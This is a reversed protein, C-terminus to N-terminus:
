LVKQRQAEAQWSRRLLDIVEQDSTQSFNVYWASVAGFSEPTNLCVLEDVLPRLQLVTSQAGVPVALIVKSPGLARVAQIAARASAGTALGDDVLIATQGALRPYPRQGRFLSLRRALEAIERQVSAQLGQPGLRFFAVLEQNWVVVGGPGVAGIALEDQGPAGIKRVALIDLPKKLQQSVAYGVPVGGRPLALVIANEQEYPALRVALQRGADERDQFLM